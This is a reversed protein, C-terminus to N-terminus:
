VLVRARVLSSLTDCIQVWHEHERYLFTCFSPLGQLLAINFHKLVPHSFVKPAFTNKKQLVFEM